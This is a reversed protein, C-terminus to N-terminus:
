PRRALPAGDEIEAHWTSLGESKSPSPYTAIHGCRMPMKIEASGGGRALSVNVTKAREVLQILLQTERALPQRPKM